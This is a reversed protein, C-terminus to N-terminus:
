TDRNGGPLRVESYRMRDLNGFAELRGNAVLIKVREAYFLDPVEPVPSVPEFMAKSILMAVKRRHVTAHAMLSEDIKAVVEPTLSSVLALEEPTMPGDPELDHDAM